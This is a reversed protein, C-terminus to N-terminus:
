RVALCFFGNAAKLLVEAAVIVVVASAQCRAAPLKRFLVPPRPDILDHQTLFCRRLSRALVHKQDLALQGTMCMFFHAHLDTIGDCPLGLVGQFLEPGHNLRLSFLLGPLLPLM